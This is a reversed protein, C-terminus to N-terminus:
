LEISNIEKQSAKLRAAHRSIEDKNRIAFTQSTVDSNGTRLYVFRTWTRGEFGKKINDDYIYIYIHRRRANFNRSLFTTHM